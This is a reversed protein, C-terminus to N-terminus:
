IPGKKLNGGNWIEKSNWTIVFICYNRPVLMCFTGSQYFDTSDLTFVKTSSPWFFDWLFIFLSTQLSLKLLCNEFYWTSRKSWFSESPFFLGHMLTCWVHFVCSLLDGAVSGGVYQGSFLWCVLIHALFGIGLGTLLCKWM